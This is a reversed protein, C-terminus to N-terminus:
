AVFIKIHSEIFNNCKDRIGDSALDYIGEDVSQLTPFKPNPRFQSFWSIDTGERLETSGTALAQPIGAELRELLEVAGVLKLAEHVYPAHYIKQQLLYVEIGNGGVEGSFEWLFYIARVEPPLKAVLALDTVFPPSEAQLCIHQALEQFRWDPNLSEFKEQPYPQYM